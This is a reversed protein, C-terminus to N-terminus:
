HCHVLSLRAYSLHEYHQASLYLDRRTFTGNALCVRWVRSTRTMHKLRRALYESGLVHLSTCRVHDSLRPEGRRGLDNCEVEVGAVEAREVEARGVEAREVEPRGM